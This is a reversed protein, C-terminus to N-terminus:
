QIILTITKAITTDAKYTITLEIEGTVMPLIVILPYDSSLKMVKTEDVTVDVNQETCIQGDQMVNYTFSFTNYLTLNFSDGETEIYYKRTEQEPNEIETPVNEEGDNSGADEDPAPESEPPTIEEDPTPESEPPTIEPAPENEPPTEEPQFDDLCDDSSEDKTNDPATIETISASTPNEEKQHKIVNSVVLVIAILLIACVSFIRFLVQGKKM